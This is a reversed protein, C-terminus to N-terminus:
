QSKNFNSNFKKDLCFCVYRWLLIKIKIQTYLMELCIKNGIKILSRFLKMM